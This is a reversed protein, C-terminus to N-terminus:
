LPTCHEYPLSPNHSTSLKACISHTHSAAEITLGCSTAAMTHGATAHAVITHMTPMASIDHTGVQERHLIARPNTHRSSSHSAKSRASLDRGREKSPSCAARRAKCVAAGEHCCFVSTQLMVHPICRHYASALSLLGGIQLWVSHLAKTHTRTKLDGHCHL